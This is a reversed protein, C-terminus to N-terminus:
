FYSFVSRFSGERERTNVDSSADRLQVLQLDMETVSESHSVESARASM